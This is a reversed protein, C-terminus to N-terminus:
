LKFNKHIYYLVEAMEEPTEEFNNKTWSVYLNYLSGAFAHLTYYEMRNTKDRQWKNLIYETIANLFIYEYGNNTVASLFDKHALIFRFYHVMHEKDYYIGNQYLQKEAADYRDLIISFYSSFIEEKSNFNRYYSMRSVGATKTLETIRIESLPKTKILKILAETICERVFINEPNNKRDMFKARERHQLLKKKYFQIQFLFLINYITVFIIILKKIIYEQFSYCITSQVGRKYFVM